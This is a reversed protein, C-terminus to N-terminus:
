RTLSFLTASQPFVLSRGRQCTLSMQSQAESVAVGQVAAGRWPVVAQDQTVIQGAVQWVALRGGLLRDGSFCM